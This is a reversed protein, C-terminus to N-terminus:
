GVVVVAHLAAEIRPINLAEGAETNGKGKSNKLSAHSAHSASGIKPASILLKWRRM